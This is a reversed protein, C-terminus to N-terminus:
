FDGCLDCFGDIVAWGGCFLSAVVGLLWEVPLDLLGGRGADWAFGFVGWGGPFAALFLPRVVAGVHTSCVMERQLRFGRNCIHDWSGSLRASSADCSPACLVAHSCLAELLLCLLRAPWPAGGMPWGHPCVDDVVGFSCALCGLGAAMRMVNIALVVDM